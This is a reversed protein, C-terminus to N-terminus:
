RAGRYFSITRAIAEDLLILQELHLETRARSTDPVYQELPKQLIPKGLIHVHMGPDFHGAVKRALEAIAISEESGVNYPRGSAGKMLITWLWITLDAAHLYSRRATGDGKVTIPGGNLGDQIFNGIAFHTKLPLHPGVFAFGRAIKVEYGIQNAHLVVLTEAARKGEGYASASQTPDPSGSFDEPLNSLRPPQVGYVAGSSTFLLEKVGCQRAFELIHRTGEVITNFMLVPDEATLKASAQTAAHIIFQFAGAPFAFTRIDGQILQITPSNALVPVKQRASEPDRTLVVASADLGLRENAWALSEMLWSGFFGTGGTVFIREGRLEEWLERTHDLIHNLDTPPITLQLNGM